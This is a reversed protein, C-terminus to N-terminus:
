YEIEGLSRKLYNLLIMAVIICVALGLAAGGLIPSAVESINHRWLAVDSYPNRHAVGAHVVHNVGSRIERSHSASPRFRDGGPGPNHISALCSGRSLAPDAGLCPGDDSDVPARFGSFAKLIYNEFRFEM